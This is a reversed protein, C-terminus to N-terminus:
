RAGVGVATAHIALPVLGFVCAFPRRCQQSNPLLSQCSRLRAPFLAHQRAEEAIQRYWLRQWASLDCRLIHETKGPLETEVERKTRRLM